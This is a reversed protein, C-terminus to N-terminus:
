RSAEIQWLLGRAGFWLGVLLLGLGMPVWMILGALQQDELPSLGWALPGAAHVPYWLTTSFTLLAGLLGSHVITVFIMGLARLSNTAFATLWFLYASGLVGALLALHAAEGLLASQYVPPVHALWIAAGLLLTAFSPLWGATRWRAPLLRCTAFAMPLPALLILIVHQLMHGWALTAALRCLPSALAAALFLWGVLWAGREAQGLRLFPTAGLVLLLPVLTQPALVWASWFTEPVVPPLVALCLALLSPSEM